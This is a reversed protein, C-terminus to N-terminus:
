LPQWLPKGHINEFNGKGPELKERACGCLFRASPQSVRTFIRLIHTMPQSVRTFICLSKASPQLVRTFIRLCKTSPQSVQTFISLFHATYFHMSCSCQAAIGIYFTYFDARAQSVRTYFAYVLLGPSRYGHLFPQPARTFIRLFYASPQSVQTFM